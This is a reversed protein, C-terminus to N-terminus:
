EFVMKSVSYMLAWDFNFLGCSFETKSSKIQLIFIQIRNRLGEDLNKHLFEKLIKHTKDRARTVLVSIAIIMFTYIFYHINLFYIALNYGLHRINDESTSILDYTEYLSFTSGYLNLAIFFAVPLLFIKNMLNMVDNLQIHLMSVVKLIYLSSHPMLINQYNKQNWKKIIKTDKVNLKIILIENITTFRLKVYYAVLIFFSIYSHVGIIEFLTPFFFKMNKRIDKNANGMAFLRLLSVSSFTLLYGGFLIFSM